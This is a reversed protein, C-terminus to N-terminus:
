GCQDSVFWMFTKDKHKLWYGTFIKLGPFWELDCYFSEDQSFKEAKCM